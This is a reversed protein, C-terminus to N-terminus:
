PVVVAQAAALTAGSPLVYPRGFGCVYPTFTITQGPKLVGPLDHTEISYCNGSAPLWLTAIVDTVTYPTTNRVTGISDKPDPKPTFTLTQPVIAKTSTLSYSKIDASVDSVAEGGVTTGTVFPNPQGPLTATLATTSTRTELLQTGSRVYFRVDVVVDYVPADGNVNKVTGVAMYSGDRLSTWSVEAVMVPKARDVFPLYSCVRSPCGAHTSAQVKIPPVGTSPFAISVATTLAVFQGAVCRVPKRVLFMRREAHDTPGAM